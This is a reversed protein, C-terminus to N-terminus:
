KDFKVGSCSCLLATLLVERFKINCLSHEMLVSHKVLCKVVTLRTQLTLLQCFKSKCLDQTVKCLLMGIEHRSVTNLRRNPMNSCLWAFLTFKRSKENIDKSCLPTNTGHSSASKAAPSSRGPDNILPPSTNSSAFSIETM